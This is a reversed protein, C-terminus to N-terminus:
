VTVHSRNLEILSPDNTKEGGQQLASSSELAVQTWALNQHPFTNRKRHPFTHSVKKKESM